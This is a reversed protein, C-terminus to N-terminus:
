GQNRRLNSVELIVGAPDIASRHELLDYTWNHASESIEHKYDRGKHFLGRAGHNLWKETLQLLLPLQALARATVVECAQQPM